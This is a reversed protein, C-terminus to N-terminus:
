ATKAALFSEAALLLGMAVLVYQWLRQREEEEEKDSQAASVSVAKPRAM